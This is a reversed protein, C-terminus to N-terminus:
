PGGRRNAKLGEFEKERAKLTRLTTILMALLAVAALGYAPWVWAAYGGMDFYTALDM